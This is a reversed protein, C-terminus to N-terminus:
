NNPAAILDFNVTLKEHANILGFFASPPTINFDIMSLNISGIIEFKREHLSKINVDITDQRSIGAISLNGITRLGFLGNFSTSDYLVITKILKYQIVSDRNAKLATYMDENMAPNGCDFFKVLVEIQAYKNSNNAIDGIGYIAVTRCEYSGITASGDIWLRSGTELHYTISNNNRDWSISAFSVLLSLVIINIRKLKM